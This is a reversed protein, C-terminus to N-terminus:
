CLRHRRAACPSPCFSRAVSSLIFPFNQFADGLTAEVSPTHALTHVSQSAKAWYAKLLVVAGAVGEHGVPGGPQLGVELRHGALTSAWLRALM